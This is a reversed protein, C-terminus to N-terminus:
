FNFARSAMWGCLVKYEALSIQPPMLESLIPAWMVGLLAGEYCNLLGERTTAQAIVDEMIKQLAALRNRGLPTLHLRTSELTTINTGTIWGVKAFRQILLDMGDSIENDTMNDLHM